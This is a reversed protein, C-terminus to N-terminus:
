DCIPEVFMRIPEAFDSRNVHFAPDYEIEHDAFYFGDVSNLRFPFSNLRRRRCDFVVLYGRATRDPLSERFWDLYNALQLAGGKARAQGYRTTTKGNADKSYGLWKIEILGVRNPFNFTVRIDIPHSEDVNQEPMVETDAALTWRLFRTLSRRM